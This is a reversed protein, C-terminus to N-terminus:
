GLELGRWSEASVLRALTAATEGPASETTDIAPLGLSRYERADRLAEGLVEPRAQEALRRQREHDGCDLLIWAGIPWDPLESPTCVTFLVVPMHAVVDIVTRVLQRYAAWTDPHQRVDRGALATAPDMFADWDLVAHTPLLTALLPMVTTKGSGPAGLVATIM